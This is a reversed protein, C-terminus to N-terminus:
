NCRKTRLEEIEMSMKQSQMTMEQEAEKAKYYEKYIEEVDVYAVKEQTCSSLLLIMSITFLLNKM